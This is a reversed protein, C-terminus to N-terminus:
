QQASNHTPIADFSRECSLGAARLRDAYEGVEQLERSHRDLLEVFLNFTTQNEISSKHQGVQSTAASNSPTASLKRLRSLLATRASESDKLQNQLVTLTEHTQNRITTFATNVEREYVLLAQQAEATKIALDRLVQAHEAKLSQIRTEQFGAGLVIGLALVAILIYKSMSASSWKKSEARTYAALSNVVPMLGTLIVRHNTLLSAAVPKLIVWM